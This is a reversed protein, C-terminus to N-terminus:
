IFIVGVWSKDHYIFHAAEIISSEPISRRATSSSEENLISSRDRLRDPRKPHSKTPRRHCSLDSIISLATPEVIM